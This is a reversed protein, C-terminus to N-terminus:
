GGGEGGRTRRAEAEAAQRRAEGGCVTLRPRKRWSSRRSRGRVPPSGRKPKRWAGSRRRPSAGSIKKPPKEDRTRRRPWAGSNKKRPGEDRKRLPKEELKRTRPKVGLRKKQRVSRKKLPRVSRKKPLKRRAEEEAARRKEAEEARRRAEAERAQRMAEAEVARRREAEADAKRQAEVEAERAQRRAEAEAARRRETEEAAKRRAEERAARIAKAEAARRKAVEAARRREEERAARREAAEQARREEERAREADVEAKRAGREAAREARIRVIKETAEAVGAAARGGLIRALELASRRAAVARGGPRRRCDARAGSHPASIAHRTARRRRVPARRAPRPSQSRRPWRFSSATTLYAPWAVCTPRPARSGAKSDAVEYFHRTFGAHRADRRLPLLRGSQRWERVDSHDALARRLVGCSRGRPDAVGSCGAISQHLVLRASRAIQTASPAQARTGSDGRRRFARRAVALAVDVHSEISVYPTLNLSCDLREGLLLGAM